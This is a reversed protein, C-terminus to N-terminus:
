KTNPSVKYNSAEIQFYQELEAYSNIIFVNGSRTEESFNFVRYIRYCPNKKFSSLENESMYFSSESNEKTTKVEIHLENGNLDYSLIDYGLTDSTLSVHKIKSSLHELNLSNLLAIESDLVFKEGQAGIDIKQANIASFDKKINFIQRQIQKEKKNKNLIFLESLTTIKSKQLEIPSNPKISIQNLESQKRQILGTNGKVSTDKQIPIPNEPQLLETEFYTGNVIQTITELKNNFKEKSYIQFESFAIGEVEKKFYSLREAGKKTDIENSKLQFITKNIESFLNSERLYNKKKLIDSEIVKQQRNLSEFKSKLKEYSKHTANHNSLVLSTIPKNLLSNFIFLLIFGPYLSSFISLLIAETITGKPNASSLGFLKFYLIFFALSTIFYSIGFSINWAKKVIKELRKREETIELIEGTIKKLEENLKEM